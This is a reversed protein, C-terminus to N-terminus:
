GAVCDNSISIITFMIDNKKELSEVYVAVSFSLASFQSFQIVNRSKMLTTVTYAGLGVVLAVHCLQLRVSSGCVGTKM